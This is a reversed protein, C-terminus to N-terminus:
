FLLGSATQLASDMLSPHMEFGKPVSRPLVLRGLAQGEGAFLREVGQHGPGLKFGSAALFPYLKAGAIDASTCAKRLAVLDLPPPAQATQFHVEGQCHRTVLDGDGGYIEFEFADGEAPGLAIRLSSNDPGFVFPQIWVVKKLRVARGALGTGAA